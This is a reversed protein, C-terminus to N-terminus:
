DIYEIIGTSHALGTQPDVICEGGLAVVTKETDLWDSPLALKYRSDSNIPHRPCSPDYEMQKLDLQLEKNSDELNQVKSRLTKFCLSLVLIFICAICCLARWLNGIKKLSIVEKDKLNIVKIAAGLRNLLDKADLEM